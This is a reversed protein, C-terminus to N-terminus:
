FVLVLTGLTILVGGAITKATVAEGLIFFAM